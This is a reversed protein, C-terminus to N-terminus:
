KLSDVFVQAIEKDINSGFMRAFKRRASKISLFPMIDIYIFGSVWRFHKSGYIVIRNLSTYGAYSFPKMMMQINNFCIFNVYSHDVEKCLPDLDISDKYCIM